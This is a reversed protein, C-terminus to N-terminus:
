PAPALFRLNEADEYGMDSGRAGHRILLELSVQSLDCPARGSFFSRVTVYKREELGSCIDGAWM